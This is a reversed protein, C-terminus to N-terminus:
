PGRREATRVASLIDDYIALAKTEQGAICDRRAQLQMLSLEVLRAAPLDGAEGRQEILEIAKLDRAACEATTRSGLSTSAPSEAKGLAVFSLLIAAIGCAILTLRPLHVAIATRLRLERPDREPRSLYHRDAPAGPCYLRPEGTSVDFLQFSTRSSLPMQHM